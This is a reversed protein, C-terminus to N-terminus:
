GPLGDGKATVRYASSQHRRPPLEPHACLRWGNEVGADLDVDSGAARLQRPVWSPACVRLEDRTRCVDLFALAVLLALGLARRWPAVPVAADALGLAVASHSSRYLYPRPNFWVSASRTSGLVFRHRRM